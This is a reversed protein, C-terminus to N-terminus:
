GRHAMDGLDFVRVVKGTGLAESLMAISDGTVLLAGARALIGRYPNTGSGWPLFRDQPRWPHAALRAVAASPTRPSTTVWLPRSGALAQAEALLRRAGKPGLTYTGSPGGILVGLAQEEGRLLAAESAERAANLSAENLGHLTLPNELVRPHAPRRYQPTTVTLSFADPPAWTRGLFVTMGQPSQQALARALAENRLAASIILHRKANPLALRAAGRHSVQHTLSLLNAQPLRWRPSLVTLPASLRQSLAEALAEIQGNEGARHSRLAVIELPAGM